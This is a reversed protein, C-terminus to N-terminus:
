ERWLPTFLYRWNFGEGMGGYPLHGLEIWGWGENLSHNLRALPQGTVFRQGPRIIPENAHGLYWTPEVGKRVPEDHFRGGDIRVLAYPTGFGNPFPSDSAYGTCEGPGPAVVSHYLPIEFDQGQDCRQMRNPEGPRVWGGMPWWQGKPKLARIAAELRHVELEEPDLLAKWKNIEERARLIAKENKWYHARKGAIIWSELQRKRYDRKGKHWRLRAELLHIKTWDTGRQLAM